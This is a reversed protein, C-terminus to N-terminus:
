DVYLSKRKVPSILVLLMDVVISSLLIFISIILLATPLALYDDANISTMLWYGMGHMSFVIEIVMAFSIITNLQLRVNHIISPLANKLVHRYIIQPKSLGKAFAAKIYNSKMIMSINYRTLRILESILFLSLVLSPLILHMIRSYFAELNYKDSALLTDVLLFGSRNQIHFVPSLDGDIPLMSNTFHPSIVLIVSLWFVPIVLGILAMVMICNDIFSDRKVSALIGLPISILLATVFAILCLELTLSFARLGKALIPQQDIVSLGWQGNFINGLYSFYLSILDILPTNTDTDNTFYTILYALVSLIFATIIFLNLRRLLYNFM